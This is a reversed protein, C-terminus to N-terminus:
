SAAGLGKCLDQRPRLLLPALLVGGVLAGLLAHRIPSPVFKRLGGRYGGLYGTPTRTGDRKKRTGRVCRDSKGFTM